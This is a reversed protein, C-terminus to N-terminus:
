HIRKYAEPKLQEGAISSLNKGLAEQASCGTLREFAPNVYGLLAASDVMFVVEQSQDVASRLERLTRSTRQVHRGQDAGCTPLTSTPV